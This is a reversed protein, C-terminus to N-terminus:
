TTIQRTSSVLPWRGGQTLRERSQKRVTRRATPGSFCNKVPARVGDRRGHTLARAASARHLQQSNWAVWAAETLLLKSAVSRHGRQNQVSNFLPLFFSLFFFFSLLSYYFIPWLNWTSRQLSCVSNLSSGCSIHVVFFELYQPWRLQHQFGRMGYRTGCLM